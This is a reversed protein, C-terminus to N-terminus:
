CGSFHPTRFGSFGCNSTWISTASLLLATPSERHSPLALVLLIVSAIMEITVLSTVTFGLIRDLHHQGARRLIVTPVLLVGIIAPFLWRPGITLGAPLARSGGSRDAGAPSAGPEV